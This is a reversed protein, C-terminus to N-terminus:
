KEELDRYFVSMDREDTEPVTKKKKPKTLNKVLKETERVSLQNKMIQLAVAYQQERDELGLLSRGHGGSIKGEALFQQVREDLKLLRMSNTITVRSKSVRAAVDEQKLNFEDILLQYAMAEEIPNLDERQVNEILAIEMTEQPTYERVIVPIEKLGAIQAARWRREGAIIEFREGNKQVLLPQLVGFQRISDALENLM